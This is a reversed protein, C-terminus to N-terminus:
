NPLTKSNLNYLGAGVSKVQLGYTFGLPNLPTITATGNAPVYLQYVRRAENTAAPVTVDVYALAANTYSQVVGTFNTFTTVINTSYVTRSNYAATIRNTLTASDNDYLIVIHNTGSTDILTMSTLLTPDASLLSVGNTIVGATYNQAAGTLAIALVAWLSLLFKKM